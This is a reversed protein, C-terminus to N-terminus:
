PKVKVLSGEEIGNDSIVVAESSDDYVTTIQVEGTKKGHIFFRLGNAGKITNTSDFVELMRGPVLGSEIGSSITIKDGAISVIYGKWPQVTLADCIKEGVTDAIDEFADELIFAEIRNKSRLMELDYEDVEVNRKIVKHLLKTGTETDFMNVSMQVHFFYHTDRFWWIGKEEEFPNVGTLTVILIANLGHLRGRKALKLTDIEGKGPSQIDKIDGPIGIKAAPLISIQPCLSTITEGLNEQFHIEPTGYSFVTQSSYYAIAVKKNLDKDLAKFGRAVNKTKKTVNNYASCGLVFYVLAFLILLYGTWSIANRCDYEIIKGM